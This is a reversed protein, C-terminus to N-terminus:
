QSCQTPVKEDDISEDSGSEEEESSDSSEEEPQISNTSRSELQEYENTKNENQITELQEHEDDDEEDDDDDEEEDDTDPGETSTDEESEENEDSYFNENGIDKGTESSKQLLGRQTASPVVIEINRVIPDPPELPFDPLDKYGVAAQGIVFSLTGLTHPNHDVNFFRHYYFNVIIFVIGRVISELIPAPKPALLIKKAYKSLAPCKETQIVLASFFPSYCECDISM